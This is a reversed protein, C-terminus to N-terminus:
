SELYKRTCEPDQYNIFFAKAGGNKTTTPKMFVFSSNDQMPKIMEAWQNGHGKPVEIIMQCITIGQKNLWGDKKLYDWFSFKGYYPNIWLIDIRTLNLDHLYEEVKKQAMTKNVLIDNEMVEMTISGSAKGIAVNEFHEYVNSANIFGSTGYM